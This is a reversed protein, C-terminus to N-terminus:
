TARIAEEVDRRHDKGFYILAGVFFTPAGFNGRAVSQETNRQLRERVTADKRFV